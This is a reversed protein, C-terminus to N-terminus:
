EPVYRIAEPTLGRRTRLLEVQGATLNRAKAVRRNVAASTTAAATRARGRGARTTAKKTARAHTRKAM